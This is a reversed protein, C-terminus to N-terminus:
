KLLSSLEYKSSVNLKGKINVFHTEVTRRSINLIEAIQNASKGSNHLELCQFEKVTLKKHKDLVGMTHLWYNLKEAGTLNTDRETAFYGPRESAINFKYDKHYDIVHKSEDKIFKFLKKISVLENALVDILRTPNTSNFLTILQTHEDLQERIYVSTCKFKDQYIESDEHGFQTSFTQVRTKFDRMYQWNPQYLFYKKEIAEEAVDPRNSAYFANGDKYLGYISIRRLEGLLPYAKQALNNFHKEFKTGRNWDEKISM